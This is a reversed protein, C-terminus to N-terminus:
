SLPHYECIERRVGLYNVFIVRLIKITYLTDSFVLFVDFNCFCHCFCLDNKCKMFFKAASRLNKLPQRLVSNRFRQGVYIPTTSSTSTSYVFVFENCRSQCLLKLHTQITHTHSCRTTSIVCSQETGSGTWCYSWAPSPLNHVNSRQLSVWMCLKSSNRCIRVTATIPYEMGVTGHGKIASIKSNPDWHKDFM